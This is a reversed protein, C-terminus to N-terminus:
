ILSNLARNMKRKEYFQACFMHM